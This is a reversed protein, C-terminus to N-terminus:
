SNGIMGARTTHSRTIALRGSGNRAAPSAISSPRGHPIRCSARATDEIATARSSVCNSRRAQIRDDTRRRANTDRYLAVCEDERVGQIVTLDWGTLKAFAEVSYNNFQFANSSFKQVTANRAGLVLTKIGGNLIAGACM